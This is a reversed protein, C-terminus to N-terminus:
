ARLRHILILEAEKSRVTQDIRGHGQTYVVGIRSWEKNQTPFLALVPQDISKKKNMIEVIKKVSQFGAMGHGRIRKM